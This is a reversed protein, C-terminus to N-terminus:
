VYAVTVGRRTHQKVSRDVRVGTMHRTELASPSAPTWASGLCGACTPRSARGRRGRGPAPLAPLRESSSACDESGGASLAHQHPFPQTRPALVKAEM